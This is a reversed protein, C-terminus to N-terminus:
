LLETEKKHLKGRKAQKLIQKYKKDAEDLKKDISKQQFDYYVSSHHIYTEDLIEAKRLNKNEWINISSMWYIYGDIFEADDPMDLFCFLCYSVEQELIGEHTLPNTNPDIKNQIYELLPKKGFKKYFTEGFYEDLHEYVMNLIQKKIYKSLIEKPIEPCYEKTIFKSLCELWFVKVPLRYIYEHWEDKKAM